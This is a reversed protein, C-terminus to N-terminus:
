KVLGLKRVFATIRQDYEDLKEIKWRLSKAGLGSADPKPFGLYAKADDYEQDTTFHYREKVEAYNLQPSRWKSPDEKYAPAGGVSIGYTDTIITTGHKGAIVQDAM